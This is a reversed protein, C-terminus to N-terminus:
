PCEPKTIEIQRRLKFLRLREELQPTSRFTRIMLQCRDRARLDEWDLSYQRDLAALRALKQEESDGSKLIDFIEPFYYMRYNLRNQTLGLWGVGFFDFGGQESFGKVHDLWRRRHVELKEKTLPSGRVMRYFDHVPWHFHRNNVPRVGTVQIEKIQTNYMAWDCADFDGNKGSPPSLNIIEVSKVFPLKRLDEVFLSIADDPKRNWDLWNARLEHWLYPGGDIRLSDFTSWRTADTPFPPNPLLYSKPCLPVSECLIGNIVLGTGRLRVDYPADIYQGNFFLFYRDNGPIKLSVEAFEALRDPSEANFYDSEELKALVAGPVQVGQLPGPQTVPFDENEPYRPLNRVKGWALAPPRPGSGYGPFYPVYRYVAWGAAALAVLGLVIRIRKRTTM